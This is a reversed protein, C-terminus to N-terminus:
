RLKASYTIGTDGLICCRGNVHQEGTPECGMFAIDSAGRQYLVLPGCPMDGLPQAREPDFPEGRRHDIAEHILAILIFASHAM